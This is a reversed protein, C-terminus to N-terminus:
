ASDEPTANFWKVLIQSVVRGNKQIIRRDLISEPELLVHGAESLVIPLTVTASHSRIKKKLRDLIKFPGFYKSSLKQFGHQKLSLQRYPQLKVYVWDGIAYTRDTRRKDAQVKM